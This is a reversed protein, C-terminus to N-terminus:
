SRRRFRTLANEAHSRAEAGIKSAALRSEAPLEDGDAWACIQTPESNDVSSNQEAATSSRVAGLGV